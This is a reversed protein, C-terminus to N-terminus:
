TLKQFSQAFLQLDSMDTVGSHRGSALHFRGRGLHVQVFAALHLKGHRLQVIQLGRASSKEKGAEELQTLARPKGTFPSGGSPVEPGASAIAFLLSRIVGGMVGKGASAQPSQFVRPVEHIGHNRCGVLVALFQGFGSLM